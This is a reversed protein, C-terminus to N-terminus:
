FFAYRLGLVLLMTALIPNMIKNPLMRSVRAGLHIAPVSGVLLAALLGLDVHGLAFHISGAVFTLPVAHAIDTGVVRTGALKPFLLMLVATGIAGAGVSSLTVLVGLIAGFVTAMRHRHPPEKDEYIGGALRSLQKRFILVVATIMLMVGLSSTLLGAYNNGHGLMFKLLLGTVLASPLSGMALSRMIKWDVHGMRSHSIAGSTKTFAAFLLDTGIATTPPFGFLLLLPTMLAGGGVGTLGIIFGVTAGAIVLQVFDM